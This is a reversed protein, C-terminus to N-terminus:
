VHVLTSVGENTEIWKSIAPVSAGTRPKLELLAKTILAITTM